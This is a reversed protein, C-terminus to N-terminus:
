DRDKKRPGEQGACSKERSNEQRARCPNEQSASECHYRAQRSTQSPREEGPSGLGSGGSCIEQWRRKKESFLFCSPFHVFDEGYHSIMNSQALSHARWSLQGLLRNNPLLGSTGGHNILHSVEPVEHANAEVQQGFQPTDPEHAFLGSTQLSRQCADVGCVIRREDEFLCVFQKRHLAIRGRKKLFLAIQPQQAM